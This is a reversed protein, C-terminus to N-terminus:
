AEGMANAIALDVLGGSKYTKPKDIVGGEAKMMGYMAAGTMGLGGLQSVMSPAAQYTTSASTPTTYGRLLANYMGLQQMPYQQANAYNQIAQNIIDQQRQTQQQGLQNQMNLIGQNAALQSTGINALGQGAQAAQGYGAQAGQIGQLGLGIGQMGQNAAQAAMNQAQNYAQNYGQGILNAENGMLGQQILASQIAQRSGGYAGAQAAKGQAEAQQRGAAQEMMNLQPTLANQVYPNMYQQMADANTLTNQLQQGAGVGMTGLDLAQNASGLGGLAANATIDSATNFQGPTQLNAAGQFSQQQMPSFPAFYDSPNSSYPTFGKVGTIKNGDVNFIQQTAAGLMAETQPRLWNPISSQTVNSTTASPGGGGFLMPSLSCRLHGNEFWFLRFAKLLKM